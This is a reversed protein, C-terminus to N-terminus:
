KNDKIITLMGLITEKHYSKLLKQALEIYRKRSYEKWSGDDYYWGCGDTHNAHCIISHLATAIDKEVYTLPLSSKEQEQKKAILKELEVIQQKLGNIEVSM